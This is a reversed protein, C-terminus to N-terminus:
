IIKKHRQNPKNALIFLYIYIYIYIYKQNGGFLDYGPWGQLVWQRWLIFLFIIM